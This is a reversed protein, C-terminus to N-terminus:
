HFDGFKMKLLIVKRIPGSLFKTLFPSQSVLNVCLKYVIPSLCKILFTILFILFMKFFEVCLINLHFNRNWPSNKTGFWSGMQFSISKGWKFDGTADGSRIWSWYRSLGRWGGLCLTCPAGLSWKGQHVGGRLGGEGGVWGKLSYLFIFRTSCM